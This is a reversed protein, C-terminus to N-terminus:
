VAFWGLHQSSTVAPQTIRGVQEQGGYADCLETSRFSMFRGLTLEWVPRCAGVLSRGCVFLTIACRAMTKHAPIDDLGVEMTESARWDGQGTVFASLQCFTCCLILFVVWKSKFVKVFNSDSV